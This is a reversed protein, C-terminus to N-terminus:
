GGEGWCGSWRGKMMMMMMMMMMVMMWWGDDDDDDDDDHEDDDDDHEDDVDGDTTYLPITKGGWPKTDRAPIIRVNRAGFM